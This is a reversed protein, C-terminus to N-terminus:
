KETITKVFYTYKKNQVLIVKFDGKERNECNKEYQKVSNKTITIKCM